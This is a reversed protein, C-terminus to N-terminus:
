PKRCDVMDLSLNMILFVANKKKTIVNNQRWVAHLLVTM